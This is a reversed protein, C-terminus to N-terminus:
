SGYSMSSLGNAKPWVSLGYMVYSLGNRTKMVQDLFLLNEGLILTELFVWDLYPNQLWPRAIYTNAVEKIAEPHLSRTIEHPTATAIFNGLRVHRWYTARTKLKSDEISGNTVAEYLDIVLCAADSMKDKTDWLDAGSRVCCDLTSRIAKKIPHRCANVKEPPGREELRVFFEKEWVLLMNMWGPDNRSPKDSEDYPDHDM